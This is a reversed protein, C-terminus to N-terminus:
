GLFEKNHKTIKKTLCFVAYAIRMLSQLESTHEESRRGPRIRGPLPRQQTRHQALRCVRRREAPGDFCLSRYSPNEHYSRWEDTSRPSFGAAKRRPENHKGIVSNQACGFRPYVRIKQFYREM